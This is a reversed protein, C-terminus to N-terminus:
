KSVLTDFLQVKVIITEKIINDKDSLILEYEFGLYDEEVPFKSLPLTIHITPNLIVLDPLKLKLHENLDLDIQITEDHVNESTIVYELDVVTLAKLHKQYLYNIFEFVGLLILPDCSKGNVKIDETM